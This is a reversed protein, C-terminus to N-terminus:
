MPPPASAAASAAGAVDTDLWGLEEPALQERPIGAVPAVEVPRLLGDAAADALAFTSPKQGALWMVNKGTTEWSKYNQVHVEGNRKYIKNRVTHYHELADDLLMAHLVTPHKSHPKQLHEFTSAADIPPLPVGASAFVPVMRERHYRLIIDVLQERDISYLLANIIAILTSFLRSGEPTSDYRSHGYTCLFCKPAPEQQATAALQRIHADRARREDFAEAATIFAVSANGAEAQAQQVDAEAAAAAEGVWWPQPQPQPSPSRRRRRNPRRRLPQYQRRLPDDAVSGSGSVSDESWSDHPPPPVPDRALAGDDAALLASRSLPPPLPYDLHQGLTLRHHRMTTM